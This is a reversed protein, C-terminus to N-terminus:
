FLEETTKEQQQIEADTKAAGSSADAGPKPANEVRFIEFVADGSSANALEGTQPNILVSTMGAPEIPDDDPVGDLASRMYEIWMPM